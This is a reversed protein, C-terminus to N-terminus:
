PQAAPESQAVMNKFETPSCDTQTGNHIYFRDPESSTIIRPWFVRQKIIHDWQNTPTHVHRLLCLIILYLSFFSFFFFLFSLRGVCFCFSYDCCIFVPFGLSRLSLVCWTEAPKQGKFRYTKPKLRDFPFQWAGFIQNALSPALLKCSVIQTRLRERDSNAISFLITQNWNVGKAMISNNIFHNQPGAEIILWALSRSQTILLNIIFLRSDRKVNTPSCPYSRAVMRMRKAKEFFMECVATHIKSITDVWTRDRAISLWESIAVM